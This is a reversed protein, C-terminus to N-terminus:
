CSVDVNQFVINESKGRLYGKSFYAEKFDVKSVDTKTMIVGSLDFGAAKEGSLKCERLDYLKDRAANAQGIASSSLTCRSKDKFDIPPLKFEKTQGDAYSPMPSSLIVASMVAAVAIKGWSENKGKQAQLISEIRTSKSQSQPAFASACTLVLFLILIKTKM